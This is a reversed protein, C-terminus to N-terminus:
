MLMDHNAGPTNTGVETNYAAIYSWTAARPEGNSVLRTWGM